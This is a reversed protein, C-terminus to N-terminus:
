HEIAFKHAIEISRSSLDVGVVNLGNRALELTLYGFGCGLKIVKGGRQKSINLVFDIEPMLHIKVLEPNRWVNNYFWDVKQLKRLDPIFGHKIRENTQRDFAKVEKELIEKKVM